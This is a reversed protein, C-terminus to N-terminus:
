LFLSLGAGLIISNKAITSETDKDTASEINYGLFVNVSTYPSLFYAGGGFLGITTGSSESTSDGSESKTSDVTFGLGAYPVFGLKNLEGIFYKFGLGFSTGTSTTKVSDAETSATQYILIPGVGFNGFLHFYNVRLSLSSGSAEVADGEKPTLTTSDSSFEFLSLGLEGVKAAGAAMPAAEDMMEGDAAAEEQAAKKKRKKKKKKKAALLIQGDSNYTDAVVQSCIGFTFLALFAVLYSTLM